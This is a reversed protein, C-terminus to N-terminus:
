DERISWLRPRLWMAGLLSVAGCVLFATAAGMHEAVWGSQFAGFPALGLV